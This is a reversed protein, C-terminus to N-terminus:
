IRMSSEGQKEISALQSPYQIMQYDNSWGMYWRNIVDM